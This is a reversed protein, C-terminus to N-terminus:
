EKWRCCVAVCQMVSCWVADCQVVSCWVADCQLVSDKGTDREILRSYDAGRSASMHTRSLSHTHADIEGPTVDDIGRTFHTTDCYPKTLAGTPGLHIQEMTQMHFVWNTQVYCISKHKIDYILDHWVYSFTMHVYLYTYICLACTCLHM